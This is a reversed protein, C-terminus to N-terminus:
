RRTYMKWTLYFLLLSAGGLMITERWERKQSFLEHVEDLEFATGQGFNSMDRMSGTFGEQCTEKTIPNVGDQFNCPSINAIDDNSVHQSQYTLTGNGDIVKLNVNTCKPTSEQEFATIIQEPNLVMLDEFIGPVLGQSGSFVTNMAQTLFSSGSKPVNDIYIARSVTKGNPDTCSAKTDVFYKNGLPRGTVSAESNGAVLLNVYDEISAINQSLTGMGGDGSMGLQQPTKIQKYYHYDM